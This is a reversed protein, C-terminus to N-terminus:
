AIQSDTPLSINAEDALTRLKALTTASVTIGGESLKQLENEEARGGPYHIRKRGKALPASTVDEIMQGVHNLYTKPDAVAAVDISIMLHGVGSYEKPDYPGNVRVGTQSGTLAGALVDMMFTIAYGKAGGIPQVLGNLAEVPDTTPLGDASLAWDAPISKGEDRALFMKGRAATTNSMDAVVVGHTTPAPAAISWPNAGLIKSKGGWPAMASSSNTTLFSVCGEKAARRTFYQATGFHNSNRVGVLAIGNARARQVSEARITDGLVQGIGHRGDLVLVSGSDIITEPRTKAQMVGNRLRAIYWPLRLLGHSQHGWLEAQVLSDAVLNADGSPVDSSQLVASAFEIWRQPLTRRGALEVRKQNITSM